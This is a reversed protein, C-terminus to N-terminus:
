LGVSIVTVSPDPFTIADVVGATVNRTSVTGDIGRSLVNSGMQWVTAQGNGSTNAPWRSLAIQKNTQAGRGVNAIMVSAKGAGPSLGLVRLGAANTPTNWRTGYLKHSGQAIMYGPPSISGNRILDATGAAYGPRDCMQWWGAFCQRNAVDLRDIAWKAVCLAGVYSEEAPSAADFDISYGMQMFAKLNSSGISSASATETGLRSASANNPVPTMDTAQVSPSVSSGMTFMNWSFIDLGPVNYNAFGTLSLFACTPGAILINPNISRIKPLMNNYYSDLTAVFSPDPEDTGTIGILPFPSGNPMRVTTLYTVLNAMATGFKDPTDTFSSQAPKSGVAFDVGIMCKAIGLPDWNSWNNILNALTASNVSLNSNWYQQNSNKFFLLGANIKAAAATTAPDTFMQFNNDGAAGGSAGWLMRDVVIQGPLGGAPYNMPSGYDVVLFNGPSTAVPGPGGAQAAQTAQTLVNSTAGNGASNSVYARLNYTTSATLGTITISSLPSATPGAWGIPAGSIVGTPTISYWAGATDIQWVTGAMLLMMNANSVTDQATGVTPHKSPSLSWVNGFSDTFTGSGPTIYPIPSANLYIGSPATKYQPQVIGTNLPSGTTPLTIRFTITSSTSSANGVTPAGPGTARRLAFKSAFAVLLALAAALRLM